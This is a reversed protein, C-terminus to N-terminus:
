QSQLPGVQKKRWARLLLLSTKYNQLHTLTLIAESSQMRTAKQM